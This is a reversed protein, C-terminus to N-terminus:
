EGKDEHQHTLDAIQEDVLEYCKVVSLHHKRNRDYIERFKDKIKELQIIAFSIKDQNIEKEVFKTMKLTKAMLENEKEKEALKAKLDSIKKFCRNLTDKIDEGDKFQTDLIAGDKCFYIRHEEKSM